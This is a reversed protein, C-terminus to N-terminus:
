AQGKARDLWPRKQANSLTSWAPSPHAEAYMARARELTTVPGTAHKIAEDIYALAARIDKAERRGDADEDAKADAFAGMESHVSSLGRLVSASPKRFATM